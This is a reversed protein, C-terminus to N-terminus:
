FRGSLSITGACEHQGFVSCTGSVTVRFNKTKYADVSVGARNFDNMTSPLVLNVRNVIGEPLIYKGYTKFILENVFHQVVDPDVVLQNNEDRIVFGTDDVHINCGQFSVACHLSSLDPRSPGDPFGGTFRGAGRLAERVARRDFGGGGDALPGDSLKLRAAERFGTGDTAMFSIKLAWHDDNDLIAHGFFPSGASDKADILVQKLKKYDRALFNVGDLTTSGINMIRGVHDDLDIQPDCQLLRRRIERYVEKGNATEVQLLRFSEGRKQQELSMYCARCEGLKQLSFDIGIPEPSDIEMYGIHQVQKKEWLDRGKPLGEFNIETKKSSEVADILRKYDNCTFYMGRPTGISHGFRWQFKDLNVGIKQLRAKIDAIVLRNVRDETEQQTPRLNRPPNPAM